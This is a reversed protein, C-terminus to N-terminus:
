SSQKQTLASKHKNQPMNVFSKPMADGPNPFTSYQTPPYISLIISHHYVLRNTLTGSFNLTVYSPAPKATLGLATTGSMFPNGSLTSLSGTACARDCAKTCSPDYFSLPAPSVLSTVNYVENENWWVGYNTLDFLREQFIDSPLLATDCQISIIYSFVYKIGPWLSYV